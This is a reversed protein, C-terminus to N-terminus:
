RSVASTFSALSARFAAPTELNVLHGARPLVELTAGPVGRALAEAVPPPTVVDDEGVLVLTPVAIEGLTPRADPRDRLARLADAVALPEAARALSRVHAEVAPRERRTAESLLKPVLEDIFGAMDGGEVRAIARDRGTRAEESDAEARTDALVLGRLRSAHRRAFALAVYGGMSIGCAVVPEEVGLADLLAVLDDAMADISPPEVFGDTGGFGRVSPAIVRFRSALEAADERFAEASLPFPHLLVLPAGRGEDIAEVRLRATMVTM